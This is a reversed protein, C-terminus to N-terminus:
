LRQRSHVDGANLTALDDTEVGVVIRHGQQLLETWNRRHPLALAETDIERDSFRPVRCHVAASNKKTAIRIVQKLICNPPPDRKLIM